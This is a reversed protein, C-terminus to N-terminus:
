CNGNRLRDVIHPLHDARVELRELLDGTSGLEFDPQFVESGVVDLIRESTCRRCQDELNEFGDTTASICWLFGLGKFSLFKAGQNSWNLPQPAALAAPAAAPAAAAEAADAGAAADGPAAPLTALSPPPKGAELWRNYERFAERYGAWAALDKWFLPFAGLRAPLGSAEFWRKMPAHM